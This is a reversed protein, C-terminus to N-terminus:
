WKDCDQKGPSTDCERLRPLFSTIQNWWLGLSCNQGSGPFLDWFRGICLSNRKCCSKLFRLPLLCLAEGVGPGASWSHLILLHLISEEFGLNGLWTSINSLSGQQQYTKGNSMESYSGLRTWGLLWLWDHSQSLNQHFHLSGHRSGPMKWQTSLLAWPVCVRQTVGWSVSLQDKPLALARGAGALGLGGLQSTNQHNDCPSSCAELSHHSSPGPFSNTM